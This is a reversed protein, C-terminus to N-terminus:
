GARTRGKPILFLLMEPSAGIFVFQRIKPAPGFASRKFLFRFYRFLCFPVRSVGATRRGSNTSLIEIRIRSVNDRVVFLHNLILVGGRGPLIIDFTIRGPCSRVTRRSPCNPFEDSRFVGFVSRGIERSSFPSFVTM